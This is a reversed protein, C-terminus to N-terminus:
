RLLSIEIHGEVPGWSIGSIFSGRSKSWNVRQCPFEKGILKIYDNCLVRM